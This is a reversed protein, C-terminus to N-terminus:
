LNDQIIPFVFGIPISIMKNPRGTEGLYGFLLM